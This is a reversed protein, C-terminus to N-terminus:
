HNLMNILTTLMESGTQFVKSNAGYANQAVIMNTLQTALDVTSSELESSNITGLGGNAATGIVLSGSNANVAFADGPLNTLNDPSNVNGLPIQYAPVQQGNSYDYSMIGNTGISVGQWQAPANGNVAATTVAFPSALQTVNAMNLNVTQGGPVSISLSNPSSSTLQGNTPNFNLTQTTLPSTPAAENYVDVEWNNGGLNSFYLDLTVPNGLDDYAVVSSQSTYNTTSPTGTLTPSNSDLNATFTGATSPTAVLAAGDINVPTLGSTTNTVGASGPALSYGMLTYGASNVLNGSGDQVFSGARTLFTDGSTDQVLFFGNGQIALDTPSDTGTLSGQESVNYRISTTVGGAAYDGAVGAQAVLDQFETDAEKYGVTNSNSINESITALNNAQAAMGTVSASMASFLGM